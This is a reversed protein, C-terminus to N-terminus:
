GFLCGLELGMLSALLAFLITLGLRERQLSFDLSFM